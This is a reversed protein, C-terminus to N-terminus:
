LFEKNKREKECGLMMCIQASLLHEQYHYYTQRKLTHFIQTMSLNFLKSSVVWHNRKLRYALVRIANM